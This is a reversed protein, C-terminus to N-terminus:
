RFIAIPELWLAPGAIVAEDPTITIGMSASPDKFHSLAEKLTNVELTTAVVDNTLRLAPLEEREGIIRDVQAVVTYEGGFQAFSGILWRTKVPMAVRPGADGNPVAVVVLQDDGEAADGLMMKITREAEKSEKLEEGKQSFIHGQEKAKSAFWLYLRFLTQIPATDLVGRFELTDGPRVQKM